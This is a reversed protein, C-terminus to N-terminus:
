ALLVEEVMDDDGTHKTDKKEKDFTPDFLRPLLDATGQAALSGQDLYRNWVDGYSQERLNHIIVVHKWGLLEIDQVSLHRIAEPQLVMDFIGERVFSTVFNNLGIYVQTPSPVFREELGKIADARMNLM